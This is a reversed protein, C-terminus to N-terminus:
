RRGHADLFSRRVPRLNHCGVRFGVGACFHLFDFALPLRKRVDPGQDMRATAQEYQSQQQHGDVADAAQDERRRNFVKDIKHGDLM